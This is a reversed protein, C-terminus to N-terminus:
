EEIFDYRADKFYKSVAKNFEPSIKLLVLNDLAYLEEKNTYGNKLLEETYFIATSNDGLKANYSIVKLYSDYKKPSTITNLMWLFNLAEEDVIKDQKIVDINDAIVDNVFAHLRKGMQQEYVNASKNYKELEDMQYKWWGLNNYNYSVIDEELYYVYDEKIFGEKFFVANQNRNSARYAKSKRLENTYKRLSDVNMVPRYRTNMDEMLRYALLPKSAVLMANADYLDNQYIATVFSSNISIDGKAMSSIKLIQLAKSLEKKEPWKHEGEFVLLNNTFKLKRLAKQGNLMEPYNYDENGVIGIFHFPKKATLLEMNAVPSGISIVGNIGKIFTPLITAFRAGNSFGATYIRNKDIPLISHLGRIMRSSILVNKSISISDRITNSAALIFGEEEASARLLSLARRGNGDLDCVFVVPWNKSIEFNSPLYLAYTEPISDSVAVENIIRGKKLRLEQTFSVITFTLFYLFLISKKM